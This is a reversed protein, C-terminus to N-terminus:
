DDTLEWPDYSAPTGVHRVTGGVVTRIAEAVVQRTRGVTEIEIGFRLERLDM